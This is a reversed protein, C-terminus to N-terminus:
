TSTGIWTFEVPNKISTQTCGKNEPITEYFFGKVLVRHSTCSTIRISELQTYFLHVGRHQAVDKREERKEMMMEDAVVMLIM